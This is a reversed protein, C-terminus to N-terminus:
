ATVVPVSQAMSLDVKRRITRRVAKWFLFIYSVSSSDTVRRLDSDTLISRRMM